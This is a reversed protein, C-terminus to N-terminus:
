ELSNLGRTLKTRAWGFRWSRLLRFHLVSQGTDFHYILMMILDILGKPLLRLFRLGVPWEYIVATSTKTSLSAYKKMVTGSVHLKEM